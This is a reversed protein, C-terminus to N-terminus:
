WVTQLTHPLSVVGSLTLNFRQRQFHPPTSAVSVSHTRIKCHVSGFWMVVPQQLILWVSLNWKCGQSFMLHWVVFNSKCRPVTNEEGCLVIIDHIIYYLGIMQMLLTLLPLLMLCCFVILGLLLVVSYWPHLCPPSLSRQFMAMYGCIKIPLTGTESVSKWLIEM